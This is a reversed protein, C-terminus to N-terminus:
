RSSTRPIAPTSLDPLHPRHPRYNKIDFGQRYAPSNQESYITLLQSLKTKERRDIEASKGKSVVNVSRHESGKSSRRGKKGRSKKASYRDNDRFPKRRNKEILDLAGYIKMSCRYPCKAAVLRQSM